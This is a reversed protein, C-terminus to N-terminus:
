QLPPCEAATSNLSVCNFQSTLSKSPAAVSSVSPHAGHNPCPSPHQETVAARAAAAVSMQTLAITPVATSVSPSHSMGGGGSSGPARALLLLEDRGRGACREQPWGPQVGPHQAATSLNRCLGPLGM